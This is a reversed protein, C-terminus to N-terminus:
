RPPKLRDLADLQAAIQEPTIPLVEQHGLKSSLRVRYGGGRRQRLTAEDLEVGVLEVKTKKDYATSRYLPNVALARATDDAASDYGRRLGSYIDQVVLLHQVTGAKRDIKTELFYREEKFDFRNPFAKEIGLITIEADFESAEVAAASRLNFRGGACGALTATLILIILYRM